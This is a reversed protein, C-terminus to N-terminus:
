LFVGVWKEKSKVDTECDDVACAFFKTSKSKSTSSKTMERFAVAGHKGSHM